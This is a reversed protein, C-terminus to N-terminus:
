RGPGSHLMSGAIAPTTLASLTTGIAENARGHDGKADENVDRGARAFSNLTTESERSARDGATVRDSPEIPDPFQRDSAVMTSPPM